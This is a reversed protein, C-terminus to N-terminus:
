DGAPNRHFMPGCNTASDVLLIWFLVKVGMFRIKYLAKFSCVSRDTKNTVVAMLTPSRQVAGDDM